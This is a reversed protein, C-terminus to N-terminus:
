SALAVLAAAAAGADATLFSCKMTNSTPTPDHHCLKSPKMPQFTMQIQVIGRNSQTWCRSAFAIKARAQWQAEVLPAGVASAAPSAFKRGLLSSIYFYM